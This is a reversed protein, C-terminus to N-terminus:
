CYKTRNVITRRLLVVVATTVTAAHEQPNALNTDCTPLLRNDIAAISCCPDLWKNDENPPPGSARTAAAGTVRM